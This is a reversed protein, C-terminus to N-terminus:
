RCSDDPRKLTLYKRGCLGSMMFTSPSDAGGFDEAYVPFSENSYPCNWMEPLVVLKAGNSAAEEIAKRATNINQQKDATVHIQCLAAKIKQPPPPTVYQPTGCTVNRLARAVKKRGQSRLLVAAAGMGAFAVIGEVAKM